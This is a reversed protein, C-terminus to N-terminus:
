TPTSRARCWSTSAASSRPRRRSSRSSSTASSAASRSPTTSAPSRRRPLARGRRGLRPAHRPARPVAGRGRRARRRAPPRPRRLHLDAPRRDRPARAGRRGLLRRRGLPRLGRQGDGVQTACRPSPRTSSPTWRGPAARLRLHRPRLQALIEAGGETHVVEPHFQVGCIPRARTACRPSPRATARPSCARLGPLRLVQDGHSMWVTREAGGPSARSSRTRARRAEAARPRVRAGRAPEVVGGLGSPSCSSGTASASCRCASSSSRSTPTRRARRRLREVPGGSLIIGAPKWRAVGDADITGPQIECYVAHERVRRAILQTYQSGFDLILIRDRHADRPM